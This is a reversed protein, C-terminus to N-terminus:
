LLAKQSAGFRAIYGTAKMKKGSSGPTMCRIKGFVAREPWGRDAWGLVWLIGADSNPDRGDLAYKNNLHLMISLADAPSRSWALICKGWLMRVQNHMAGTEVLERQAANWLPEHTEANEFQSPTYMYARPDSEHAALTDQAWAPLSHLGSPGDAHFARHHALGRWVLLQDLFGERHVDLGWFGKRHGAKTLEFALEQGRLVARLVDHVGVHGFHLYPSLKSTVDEDLFSRGTAYRPLGRAVFRELLGLGETRGGRLPAPPVSHDIPLASLSTEGALLAHTRRAADQVVRPLQVTTRELTALPTPHPAARLASPLHAHVHRRFSAATHHQRNASALPLLDCGDVAIVPTDTRAAFARQARPIFFHPWMDTVVLAARDALAQLVPKSAHPTHEVDPVYVAHPAAAVANERMGDLVFAHMRDSAWPYDVRLPEYIVLPLDQAKALSAAHELAPQHHLRRQATMWYLVYAGRRAPRDNLAHIRSPPAPRPPLADTM